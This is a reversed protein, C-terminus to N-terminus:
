RAAKDVYWCGEDRAQLASIGTEPALQRTGRERSEARSGGTEESAGIGAGTVVVRGNSGGDSGQDEIYASHEPRPHGLWVLGPFLDTRGSLGHTRQNDAIRDLTFGDGVATLVFVYIIARLGFNTLPLYKKPRRCRGPKRPRVRWTMVGPMLGKESM